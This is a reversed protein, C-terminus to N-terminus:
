YIHSEYLYRWLFRFHHGIKEFIDRDIQSIKLYRLLYRVMDLLEQSIPSNLYRLIALIDQINESMELSIESICGKPHGVTQQCGGGALEHRRASESTGLLLDTRRQGKLRSQSGGIM